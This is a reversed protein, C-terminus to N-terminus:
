TGFTAYLADVLTPALNPYGLLEIDDFSGEDEPRLQLLCLSPGDHLVAAFLRADRREPHTGATARAAHDSELLASDLASEATPPLVVIQQVLACGSVAPPWSTTGLVDEVPVGDPLENQAIPTLEDADSLQDLLGPEAAALTHTEVLAFLQPPQDWGDRDVFEAVERLCRYLAAETSM